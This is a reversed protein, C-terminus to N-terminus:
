ASRALVVVGLVILLTGGVRYLSLTDGHVWWGLFMTIVFGLGVFPYVLSVEARSLILLWLVASGFYMGLGLVVFPDTAVICASHLRPGQALSDLVRASSMGAKLSIQALSTILVNILILVLLSAKM